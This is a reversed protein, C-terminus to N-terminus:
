ARGKRRAFIIDNLIHRIRGPFYKMTPTCPTMHQTTNENLEVGSINCYFYDWPAGATWYWNQFYIEVWEGKWSVQNEALKVTVSINSPIEVEKGGCNGLDNGFMVGIKDHSANVSLIQCSENQCHKINFYLYM